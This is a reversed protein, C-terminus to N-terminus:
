RGFTAPIVHLDTQSKNEFLENGLRSSYDPAHSFTRTAMVKRFKDSQEKPKPTIDIVFFAHSQKKPDNKALDLAAIDLSTLNKEFNASSSTEAALTTQETENTTFWGYHYIAFTITFVSAVAIPLVMQLHTKLFHYCDAYWPEPHVLAQLTKQRLERDFKDWFEKSPKEERKLLLLSELSIKQVTNNNDLAM